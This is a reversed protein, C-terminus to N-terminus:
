LQPKEATKQPVSHIAYENLLSCSRSTRSESTMFLDNSYPQCSLTFCCNHLDPPNEKQGSDQSVVIRLSNPMRFHSLFGNNLLNSDQPRSDRCQFLLYTKASVQCSYVPPFAKSFRGSSLRLRIQPQVLACVMDLGLSDTQRDIALPPNFFHSKQSNVISFIHSNTISLIYKNRHTQQCDM